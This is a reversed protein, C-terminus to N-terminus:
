INKESYNKISSDNAQIDNLLEIRCLSYLNCRLFYHLTTEVEKDCICMPDTMDIM